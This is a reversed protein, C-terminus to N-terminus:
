FSRTDTKDNNGFVMKLQNDDQLRHVCLALRVLSEDEIQALIDVPIRPYM